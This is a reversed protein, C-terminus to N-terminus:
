MREDSETADYGNKKKFIQQVLQFFNFLTIEELAAYKIYKFTYLRGLLTLHGLFRLNKTVTIAVSEEAEGCFTRQM